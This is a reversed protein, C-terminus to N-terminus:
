EFCKWSPCIANLIDSDVEVRDLEHIM